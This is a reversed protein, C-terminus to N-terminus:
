RLERRARDIVEGVQREVREAADAVARAGLELAKEIQGTWSDTGYGMTELTHTVWMYHTDEDVANRRVVEAVDTPYQRGARERYKDRVQRENAKFALLVTADSGPAAVAQMALKFPGTSLHPLEVPLGGLQRVLAALEEIHRKHDLRFVVLRERLEESKITDIAVTYAAVADHDLQLLDNLDAIVTARDPGDFDSM